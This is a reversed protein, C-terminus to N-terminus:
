PAPTAETMMAASPIVLFALGVAEEQGDNRIEGESNAPIYAADGADLTVAEGPTIAEQLGSFDGSAEATAMAASLGAGRTVTVPTDVQVTLSGSEILLFGLSPDSKDIPVTAGPAVTARAVFLDGSSPLDIGTAFTVPEFTVGAPMTGEGSPTAEQAVAAQGILLPVIVAFLAALVPIRRMEM